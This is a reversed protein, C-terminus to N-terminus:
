VTINKGVILPWEQDGNLTKGATIVVGKDLICYNLQAGDEVTSGQMIISNKIHVGKMVRVGRLLISNEVTGEIICGDAVISNKVSAEENYKAPAEDKVKTYIKRRDMLLERRVKPDLLDMNARYYLQISNLPRWYGSFIHAYIRLSDLSRIIIDMVLDTYGKAASDQILEILFKRKM